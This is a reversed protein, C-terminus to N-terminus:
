IIGYLEVVYWLRDLESIELKELNVGNLLYVELFLAFVVGCYNGIVKM